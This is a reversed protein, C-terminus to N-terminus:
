VSQILEKGHNLKSLEIIEEIIQLMITEYHKVCSATHLLICLRQRVLIDTNLADDSPDVALGIIGNILKVVSVRREMQKKFVNDVPYKQKFEEM